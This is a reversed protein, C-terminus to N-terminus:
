SIIIKLNLCGAKTIIPFKVAKLVNKYNKHFKVLKTSRKSKNMPGKLALYFGTGHKNRLKLYSYLEFLREVPGPQQQIGWEIFSQLSTFDEKYSSCNVMSQYYLGLYNFCLKVPTKNKVYEKAFWSIALGPDLLGNRFNIIHLRIKPLPKFVRLLSNECLSEQALTPVTIHVHQCTKVITILGHLTYYGILQSMLQLKLQDESLELKPSRMTLINTMYLLYSTVSQYFLFVVRSIIFWEVLTSRFLFYLTL